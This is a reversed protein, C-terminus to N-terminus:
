VIRSIGKVENENQKELFIGNIKEAERSCSSWLMFSNVEEETRATSFFSKAFRSDIEVNYNPNSYRYNLLEITDLAVGQNMLISALKRSDNTFYSEELVSVDIMHCVLNTSIMEEEFYNKESHNGVLNNTIMQTFGENLATFRDNYDFGTQIDNSTIINILGHMELNRIDDNEDIDFSLVNTNFNYNVPKSNTLKNAKEVKLDMIRKAFNSLDVNPYVSNFITLLEKIDEKVDTINVNSDVAKLADELSIM